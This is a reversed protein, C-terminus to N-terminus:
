FQISVERTANKHMVLHCIFLSLTLSLIYTDKISLSLTYQTHTLTHPPSHIFSLYLFHTHSLYISLSHTFSLSIFLTHTHTHKPTISLFLFFSGLLQMSKELPILLTSSTINFQLWLALLYKGSAFKHAFLKEFWFITKLEAADLVIIIRFLNSM